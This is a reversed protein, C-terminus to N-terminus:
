WPKLTSMNESFPVLSYLAAEDSELAEDDCFTPPPESASWSSAEVLFQNPRAWSRSRIHARRSGGAPLTGARRERPAMTITGGHAQLVSRRASTRQGCYTCRLGVGAGRLTAHSGAPQRM